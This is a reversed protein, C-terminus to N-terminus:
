GGPTNLDNARDQGPLTTDSMPQDMDCFRYGIGPETRIYTPRDPDPEIKERLQSIYVRLVRTNTIYEPGWVTHLLTQHTVVKGAHRMLLELLNFETPSLHVPTGGLMVTHGAPDLVLEGAVLPAGDGPSGAAPAPPAARRLVVRMRALLEPIGFPKTLYDDAGRDLAAVKDREAGRVSLVIVPAPTRRRLEGLVQQGDIDPLGLDLLIVDPGFREAQALGEAGTAATAVAFGLGQLTPRVARVIAWEDDIILVRTERM